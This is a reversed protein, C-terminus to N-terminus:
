RREVQAATGRVLLVKSEEVNNTHDGLLNDNTNPTFPSSFPFFNYFLAFDAASFPSEFVTFNQVARDISNEIRIFFGFIGPGFSRKGLLLKTGRKCLV